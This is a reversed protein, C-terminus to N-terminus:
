AHVVDGTHMVICPHMATSRHVVAGTYVVVTFAYVVVGKCLVAAAVCAREAHVVAGTYLGSRTCVVAAARVAAVPAQTCRM